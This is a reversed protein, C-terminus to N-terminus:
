GDSQIGLERVANSYTVLEAAIRAALEGPTTPESSLGLEELRALVAPKRLARGLAAHLTEVIKPETGAPALVGFWESLEMGGYGAEALTPVDPLLPSRAPANVALARLKGAIIQARVVPINPMMVVGGQNSLLDMLAPGTGKYPVHLLDIGARAKFMEMLIHPTSGAGASAYAVTGPAAKALAVLDAVTAAPLAPSSVMVASSTAFTGIPSFDSTPRFPVNKSLAPNLTLSSASGLLLTYGDPKARAVAVVGLTGRGGGANEVVVSAGLEEALSQAVLRAVIDTTGGAAFPVVIRIPSAPYQQARAPVPLLAAAACLGATASLLDRRDLRRM